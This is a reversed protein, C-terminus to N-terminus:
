DQWGQEFDAVSVGYVAPILINWTDYDDLARLLVPLREPGYQAVAYEVLTELAVLEGWPRARAHTYVPDADALLNLRQPPLSPDVLELCLRVVLQGTLRWLSSTECMPFFSASSTRVYFRRIVEVREGALAGGAQWVQWLRLADLLPQWRFGHPDSGAQGTAQQLVLEVLPEAAAQYLGEDPPQAAPLQLLVPSPIVIV